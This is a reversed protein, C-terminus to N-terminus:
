FSGHLLSNFHFNLIQWRWTKSIEVAATQKLVCYHSIYNVFLQVLLESECLLTIETWFVNVNATKILLFDHFAFFIGTSAIFNMIQFLIFSVSRHGGTPGEDCVVNGCLLCQSDKESVTRNTSADGWQMARKFMWGASFIWMLNRQRTKPPLCLADTRVEFLRRGWWVEVELTRKPQRSASSDQYPLTPRRPTFCPRVSIRQRPTTCRSSSSSSSHNKSSLIQLM